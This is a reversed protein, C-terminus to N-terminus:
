PRLQTTGGSSVTKNIEFSSSPQVEDDVSQRSLLPGGHSPVNHFTITKKRRRVNDEDEVKSEGEGGGCNDEMKAIEPFPHCTSWLGM